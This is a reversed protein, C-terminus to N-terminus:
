CCRSSQRGRTGFFARGTKKIVSRKAVFPGQAQTNGSIVTTLYQYLSGINIRVTGTVYSLDAGPCCFVKSTAITQTPPTGAPVTATLVTAKGSIGRICRSRKARILISSNTTLQPDGPGVVFSLRNQANITVAVINQIPSYPNGGGPNTTVRNYGPMAPTIVGNSDGNFTKGCAVNLAQQLAIIRDPLMSNLANISNNYGLTDVDPSGRLLRNGKILQSIDTEGFIWANWPNTCVAAAKGLGLGYNPFVGLKSQGTNPGAIYEARIAELTITNSIANARASVIRQGWQLMDAFQNDGGTISGYYSETWGYRGKNFFIVVKFYNGSTIPSPTAM